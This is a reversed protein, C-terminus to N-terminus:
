LHACAVYCLFLILVFYFLIRLLFCSLLEM